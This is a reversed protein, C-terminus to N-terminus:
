ESEELPYDGGNDEYSMTVSVDGAGSGPAPVVPPALSAAKVAEKSFKIVGDIEGSISMNDAKITGVRLEPVYLTEGIWCAGSIRVEPADVELGGSKILHQSSNQTLQGGAKVYVNGAVWKVADRAVSLFSSGGIRRIFRGLVLSFASSLRESRNGDRDLNSYAGSPHMDTVRVGEASNDVETERGSRSKEVDNLPYETERIIEPEDITNSESLQIGTQRNDTISQALESLIGRALPHVGIIAEEGEGSAGYWTNLIMINRYMSDLSIGLFMDGVQIGTPSRGVGESSSSSTAPLTLKAWPLFEEPLKEPSQDHIGFVRVQVLGSKKPDIVNVVEGICWDVPLKNIM